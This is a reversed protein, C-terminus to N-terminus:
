ITTVCETTRFRSIKRDLWRRYEAGGPVVVSNFLAAARLSWMLKFEGDISYNKRKEM